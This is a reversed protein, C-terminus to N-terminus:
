TKNNHEKIAIYFPMLGIASIESFMEAPQNCWSGWDHQSDAESKVSFGARLNTNSSPCTHLNETLLVQLKISLNSHFSLPLFFIKELLNHQSKLNKRWEGLVAM